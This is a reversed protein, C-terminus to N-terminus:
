RIEATFKEARLGFMRVVGNSTESIPRGVELIVGAAKKTERVLIRFDEEELFGNGELPITIVLKIGAEGM